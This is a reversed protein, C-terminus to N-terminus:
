SSAANVPKQGASAVSPLPDPTSWETPFREIYACEIAVENTVDTLPSREFSEMRSANVPPTIAM